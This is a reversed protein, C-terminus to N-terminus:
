NFLGQAFQYIEPGLLWIIIIAILIIISAFVLRGPYKPNSWRWQKEKQRSFYIENTDQNDNSSRAHDQFRFHEVSFETTAQNLEQQDEQEQMYDQWKRYTKRKM